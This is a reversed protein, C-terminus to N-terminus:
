RCLRAERTPRFAYDAADPKTSGGARTAEGVTLQGTAAFKAGARCSRLKGATQITGCAPETSKLIIMDFGANGIFLQDVSIVDGRLTIQKGVLNACPGQARATGAAALLFLLFLASAIPWRCRSSPCAPVCRAHM